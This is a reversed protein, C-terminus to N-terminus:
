GRWLIGVFCRPHDFTAGSFFSLVSCSQLYRSAFRANHAFKIGVEVACHISLSPIRTALLGDDCLQSWFDAESQADKM